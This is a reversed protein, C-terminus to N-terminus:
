HLNEIQRLTSNCYEIPIVGKWSYPNENVDIKESMICNPDPTHEVGLLHAWEHMITSQELRDVLEQNENLEEMAEKFIFITDKHVTIGVLGHRPQYKSLYILYLVPDKGNQIDKRIKNLAKDDFSNKYEIKKSSLTISTNKGITEQVLENIWVSSQENIKVGKASVLVVNIQSSSEDAYYYRYDGPENMRFVDVLVPQKLVNKKIEKGIFNENQFKVIYIFVTLFAFFLLVVIILITQIVKM